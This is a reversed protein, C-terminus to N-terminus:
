NDIYLVSKARKLITIPNMEMDFEDLGRFWSVYTDLYKTSVGYFRRMWDKIKFHYNNVNNLHVFDKKVLEGNTFDLSVHRVKRAHVFNLFVDKKDSCFLSDKSLVPLLKDSLVGVNLDRLILDFTNNNRNRSVLFCIHGPSKGSIDVKGARRRSPRDLNRSGKKNELLYACRTEIIGRMLKPKISKSLCLFRHRWRFSTSKSIGCVFAAHRISYAKQLCLAYDLWHGKRRLGLLPTKSLSNFTKNCAKCKYRQMDNQLGWKQFSSSKCHACFLDKLATELLTSVERKSDIITISAKLSKIQKPNLVELFSLYKTFNEKKM